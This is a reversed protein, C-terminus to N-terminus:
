NLIQNKEGLLLTELVNLEGKGKHDVSSVARQNEWRLGNEGVSPWQRREVSEWLM